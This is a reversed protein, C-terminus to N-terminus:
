NINLIMKGNTVVFGM